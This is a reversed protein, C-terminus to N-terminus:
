RGRRSAVAGAAGFAAAGLGLAAFLWVTSVDSGGTLGSGTSPPKPTSTVSPTVTATVVTLDLINLQYNKWSGTQTAQRDGVWFTVSAGEVGCNPTANPELAPVELNYRAEGIANYVTAVGCSASGIRAQIVTGPAAAQGDVTVKGAFAAPPAPPSEAAADSASFVGAFGVLAISAVAAVATGRLWKSLKTMNRQEM